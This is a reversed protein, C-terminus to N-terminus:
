LYKRACNRMSIVLTGSDQSLEAERWPVGVCAASFRPFTMGLGTRNSDPSSDAKEETKRRCWIALGCVDGNRHVKLGHVIGHSTCANSWAGMTQTKNETRRLNESAFRAPSKRTPSSGAAIDRHACFLPIVTETNLVLCGALCFCPRM